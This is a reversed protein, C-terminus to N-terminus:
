INCKQKVEKARLKNVSNEQNKDIKCFGIISLIYNFLLSKQILTILKFTEHTCSLFRTKKLICDDFKATPTM